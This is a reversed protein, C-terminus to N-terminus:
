RPGHRNLNFRASPRSGSEKKLKQRNKGGKSGVNRTCKQGKVGGWAWWFNWDSWQLIKNEAETQSKERTGGESM